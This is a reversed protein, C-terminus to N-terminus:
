GQAVAALRITRRTAQRSLLGVGRTGFMASPQPRALRFRDHGALTVTVALVSASDRAGRNQQRYEYRPAHIRCILPTASAGGLRRWRLYVGIRDDRPGSAM